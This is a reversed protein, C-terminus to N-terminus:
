LSAKLMRISEEVRLGHLGTAREVKSIDLDLKKPRPAIQNLETSTVQRILSKDLGFEEAIRTAFDYRNINEKGTINFVGKKDKEILSFIFESLNDTHIPNSYQDAVVKVERNNELEQVLWTPFPLKGVIKGNHPGFLMGTRSILFDNDLADIVGEAMMKTKGYYNIPHVKDKECYQTTKKGDYVNESSIFVYKCSHMGAAEALNKTYEVNVRWAEDHHTECYDVDPLHHADIVIDPKFRQMLETIDDKKALDLHVSETDETPHKNYTGMVDYRNKALDVLRQGLLGSSGVVLLRDM